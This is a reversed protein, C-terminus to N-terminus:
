PHLPTEPKSLDHNADNVTSETRGVVLSSSINGKADMSYSYVEISPFARATSGPDLQVSGDGKVDLNIHNDISGSIMGGSYPKM